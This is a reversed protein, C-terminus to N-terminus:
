WAVQTQLISRSGGSLAQSPGSASAMQQLSVRLPGGPLYNVGGLIRSADLANSSYAASFDCGVALQLRRGLWQTAQVSYGDMDGQRAMYEGQLGFGFPATYNVHAGTFLKPTRFDVSGPATYLQGQYLSVGLDLGAWPTLELKGSFDQIAKTGPNTASGPQNAGLGEIWAADVRAWAAPLVTLMIGDDWGATPGAAALNFIRAALSSYDVLALQGPTSMRNLGFPVKFQGVTATVPIGWTDVGKDMELAAYADLLNVGGALEPMVVVDIGDGVGADLRLRLHRVLDGADVYDAKGNEGLSAWDQVLGNVKLAVPVALGDARLPAGRLALLAALALLIQRM